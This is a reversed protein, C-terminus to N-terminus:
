KSISFWGHTTTLPFNAREYGNRALNGSISEMTKWQRRQKSCTKVEKVTYLFTHKSEELTSSPYTYTHIMIHIYMYIYINVRMYIYIYTTNHTYVYIYICISACRYLATDIHVGDRWTKGWEWQNWPFIQLFRSSKWTNQNTTEIHTFCHWLGAMVPFLRYFHHSTPPKLCKNKEMEHIPHWGFGM